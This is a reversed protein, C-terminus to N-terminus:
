AEPDPPAVLDDTRDDAPQGGDIFHADGQGLPDDVRGRIEDIETELEDLRGADPVMAPRNPETMASSYGPLRDQWGDPDAGEGRLSRACAVGAIAGKAAAVQVLHLGPTVDGAAYVGPVSTAAEADVEIYGEPTLVCRLQRALATRPRHAISFFAVQCPLEGMRRLRLARLDGRTGLLETADDELVAVGARALEARQGDDGEFRRGDTVVTVSAAWGLLSLAFGTVEASWGLAVVDRGQTEYGDCTPCHFVGAGYHEFFGAVEPFADEVGTALVLRAAVVEADTDLTVAFMADPRRACHRVQAARQEVEPYAALQRGARGLLDRPTVPDDGLYGHSRDVWRNRQEGGDVLLVRARYRALWTAAGFGGPGGGVVVADYAGPTM